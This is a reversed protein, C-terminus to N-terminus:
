SPRPAGNPADDHIRGFEFARITYHVAAASLGLAVVGISIGGLTRILAGFGAAHSRLRWGVMLVVLLVLACVVGRALSRLSESPRRSLVIWAAGLAVIGSAALRLVMVLTVPLEVMGGKGYIYLIPGRIPNASFTSLDGLISGAAVAGVVCLLGLAPGDSFRGCAILVGFTAAGLTVLEFGLMFWLPSQGLLAAAAGAIASLAIAGNMMLLLTGVPRKMSLESM